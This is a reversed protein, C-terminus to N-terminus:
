FQLIASLMEYKGGWGVRCVLVFVFIHWEVVVPLLFLCNATSRNFCDSRKPARYANNPQNQFCCPRADPVEPRLRKSVTITVHRPRPQETRSVASVALLGHGQGALCGAVRVCLCSRPASVPLPPPPTSPASSLDGDMVRIDWNPLDEKSGQAEMCRLVAASVTESADGTQVTDVPHPM